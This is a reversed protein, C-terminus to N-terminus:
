PAATGRSATATRRRYASPTEGAVQRFARTFASVSAFGVETAVALVTRDSETLLVMSRLLRSQLVYERWTMGVADAFRRRLTRESLGVAQCVEAVTVDALNAQTHDMVARVLPDTSTPLCLPADKDLWDHVLLALTEFFSDATPDADTRGIPWRIAHELMERLLPVVALVRVRDDAGQVMAPDFLVAVARVRRLKTRHPLGAPIWMAQGPPLLHRSGVSEVEAIGEFAYQIQHMDHSHWPATPEDGEFLYAGARRGPTGRLDVSLVTAPFPENEAPGATVAMDAVTISSGHSIV